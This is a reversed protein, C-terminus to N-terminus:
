SNCSVVIIMLIYGGIFLYILVFGSHFVLWLSVTIIHPVHALFRRTPAESPGHMTSILQAM